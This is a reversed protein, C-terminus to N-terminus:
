FLLIVRLQKFSNLSYFLQFFSKSQMGWFSDRFQWEWVCLCVCACVRRGNAEALTGLTFLATEKVDTRIISSKSLKYVFSVGGMERLLDVNDESIIFTFCAISVCKNRQKFIWQNLFVNNGRTQWFVHTRNRKTMQPESNVYREKWLNLSHHSSSTKAFRSM